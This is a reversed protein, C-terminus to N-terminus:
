WSAFNVMFCLFYFVFQTKAHGSGLLGQCEQEKM